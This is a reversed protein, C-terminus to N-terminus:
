NYRWSLQKAIYTKASTIAIVLKFRDYIFNSNLPINPGIEYGLVYVVAVYDKHLCTKVCM